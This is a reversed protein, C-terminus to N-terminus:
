ARNGVLNLAPKSFHKVRRSASGLHWPINPFHFSKRCIVSILYPTPADKIFDVLVQFYYRNIIDPWSSINIFMAMLSPFARESPVGVAGPFLAADEADVAVRVCGPQRVEAEVGQLM